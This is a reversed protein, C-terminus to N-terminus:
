RSYDHVLQASATTTWGQRYVHGGILRAGRLLDLEENANDDIELLPKGSWADGVRMGELKLSLLQRTEPIEPGVAPFHRLMFCRDGFGPITDGPEESEIEVGIRFVRQGMRDVVGSVKAGQGLESMAPNFSNLHTRHVRALKKPWGMYHGFIMSWDKDVWIFPQYFGEQEGFRCFIGIIGEGYQTREPHEYAQNPSQD